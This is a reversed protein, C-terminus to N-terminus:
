KVPITGRVFSLISKIKTPIQNLIALQGCRTYLVVEQAMLKSQIPHTPLNYKPRCCIKLIYLWTEKILLKPPGLVFIQAIFLGNFLYLSVSSMECFM